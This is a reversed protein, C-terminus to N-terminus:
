VLLEEGKENGSALEKRRAVTAPFGTSNYLGGKFPLDIVEDLQLMLSNSSTMGQEFLRSSSNASLYSGNVVKKGLTLENDNPQRQSEVIKSKM